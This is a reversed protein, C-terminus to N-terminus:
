KKVQTPSRRTWTSTELLIFDDYSKLSHIINALFAEFNSINYRPHRYISGITLLRNRKLTIKVWIDECVKDNIKFNLQQTILLNAVYIVAVGAISKSNCCYM